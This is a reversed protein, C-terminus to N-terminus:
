IKLLDDAPKWKYSVGSGSVTCKLIYEGQESPPNPLDSHGGGGGEDSLLAMAAALTTADVAM